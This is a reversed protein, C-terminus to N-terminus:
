RFDDRERDLFDKTLKVQRKNALCLHEQLNKKVTNSGIKGKKYNKILMNVNELKSKLLWEFLPGQERPLDSYWEDISARHARYTTLTYMYDDHILKTTEKDNFLDALQKYAEILRYDVPMVSRWAAMNMDAQTGCGYTGM